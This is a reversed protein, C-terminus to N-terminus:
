AFFQLVKLCIRISFRVTLELPVVLENFKELGLNGNAFIM